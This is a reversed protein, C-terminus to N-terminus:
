QRPRASFDLAVRAAGDRYAVQVDELLKLAKRIVGESTGHREGPSEALLRALSTRTIGEGDSTVAVLARWVWCATEVGRGETAAGNLRARIDDPVPPAELWWQARAHLEVAGAEITVVPFRQGHVHSLTIPWAGASEEDKLKTVTLTRQVGSDRSPGEYSASLVYDADDGKASTGRNRGNSDHGTHDVLLVGCGYEDRLRAVAEFVIGFETASNEETGPMSRRLTDVVLFRYGRGRIVEALEEAAGVDNLHVPRGYLDLAGRRSVGTSAEWARIRGAAGARGEAAVYLTRSPRMVTFEPRRLWPIGTAISCAWSVALFSKYAGSRGALFGVSEDPILSSMLMAPPEIDDLDEVIGDVIAPRHARLERAFERAAVHDVRLKAKRTEVAHRFPDVEGFSDPVAPTAGLETAQGLEGVPMTGPAVTPVVTWPTAIGDDIGTTVWEVDDADPRGWVASVADYLEREAGDRTILGAAVARGCMLAAGRLVARFGAGEVPRQARVKGLETVCARNVWDEDHVRGAQGDHQRPERAREPIVKVIEDPMEPLEAAPILADVLRYRVDDGIVRSGPAFVHGGAGRIDVGAHIRGQSNAMGGAPARWFHHVGGSPTDVTMPSVPLGSAAWWQYGGGALDLDVCVIGSPECAVLFSVNPGFRARWGRIVDPDTTAVEDWGTGLERGLYDPLKKGTGSHRRIMVPAIRYGAGALTLANNLAQEDHDPSPQPSREDVM